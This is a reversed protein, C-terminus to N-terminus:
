GAAENTVCYHYTPIRNRATRSVELFRGFVEAKEIDNPDTRKAIGCLGFCQTNYPHVVAAKATLM